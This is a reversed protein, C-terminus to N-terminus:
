VKLYKRLSIASGLMGIVMGLIIFVGLLGHYIEAFSKFKFIDMVNAIVNLSYNYLYSIIGFAIITGILGIIMGEIVFPWRIFSDTAGIFKMISIEKRRAFVALKITNSIIFVSIVALLLMSWFSLNRIFDTIRIISDLIKKRNTVEAVGDMDEVRKIFEDAAKIDNLTVKYSDRLPNDQELGDLLDADDELQTKFNELAQEKTELVCSSVNKDNRIRVGIEEIRRDSIDEDLFIQIECQAQIQNGIYNLNISFLVFLGFILLCATVTGISALSMLRNIWISRVGEAFFYKFTRVKMVM